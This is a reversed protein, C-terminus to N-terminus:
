NVLQISFSGAKQDEDSIKGDNNKEYLQGSNTVDAMRDRVEFQLGQLYRDRDSGSLLGYEEALILRLMPKMAEKLAAPSWYASLYHNSALLRSKIADNVASAIQQQKVPDGSIAREGSWHLQIISRVREATCPGLYPYTVVNYVERVSEAGTGSVELVYGMYLSATAANALTVSVDLGQVASGADPANSLPTVLTVLAGSIRSVVAVEGNVLLSAGPEVGSADSLELVNRTTNDALTTTNVSSPTAVLTAVTNGDRDYVKATTDSMPATPVLAVAKSTGRQVDM